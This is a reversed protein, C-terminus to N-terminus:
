GTLYIYGPELILQGRCGEIMAKGELVCYLRNYEDSIRESGSDWDKDCLTTMGSLLHLSLEPFRPYKYDKQTKNM